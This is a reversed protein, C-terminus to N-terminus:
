GRQTGTPLDVIFCRGGGLSPEDLFTGGHAEVVARTVYPGLDSTLARADLANIILGLLAQHMQDPFGRM